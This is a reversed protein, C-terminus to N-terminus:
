RDPVKEMDNLDASARNQNIFGPMLILCYIYHFATGQQNVSSQATEHWTVM